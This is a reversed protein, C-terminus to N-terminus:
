SMLGILRNVVHKDFGTTPDCIVINIGVGNYNLPDADVVVWKAGPYKSLFKHIEWERGRGEVDDITVDFVPIGGINAGKLNQVTRWQSIVVVDWEPRNSMLNLFNALCDRDFFGGDLSRGQDRFRLVGDFDLFLFKKM